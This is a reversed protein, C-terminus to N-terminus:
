QCIKYKSFNLNKKKTERKKYHSIYPKANKGSVYNTVELELSESM